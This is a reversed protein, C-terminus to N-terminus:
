LFCRCTKTIIAAKDNKYQHQRARLGKQKIGAWRKVRAIKNGTARAFEDGLVWAGCRLLERAQEVPALALGQDIRM